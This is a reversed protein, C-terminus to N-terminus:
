FSNETAREVLFVLLNKDGKASNCKACAGTLNTVDHTGGKAIPIIHDITESKGGCYSCPDNLVIKIWEVIDPSGAVSSRLSRKIHNIKVKDPNAERWKKASLYKQQIKEPNNKRYEQSRLRANLNIIERNEEAYKKRRAADRERNNEKWKKTALRRPEPNECHTEKRIISECPKCYSRLGISKTVDPGFSDLSKFTSCKACFKSLGDESLSPFRSKIEKPPRKADVEEKCCQKCKNRFYYKKEGDKTTESTQGFLDVSKEIECKSCKKILSSGDLIEKNETM